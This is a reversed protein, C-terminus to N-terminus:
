TVTTATIGVATELIEDSGGFNMVATITQKYFTLYYLHSWSLLLHQANYFDAVHLKIIVILLKVLPYLYLM